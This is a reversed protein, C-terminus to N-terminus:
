NSLPFNDPLRAPRDALSVTTVGDHIWPKANFGPM